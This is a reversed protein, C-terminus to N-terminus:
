RDARVERTWPNSNVEDNSTAKELLSWKRNEDGMYQGHFKDIEIKINKM